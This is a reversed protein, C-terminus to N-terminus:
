APFMREYEDIVKKAIVIRQIESTGEYIELVRADRFFREIRFEETYGVGGHIQLSDYVAENAIRSAFLKAM